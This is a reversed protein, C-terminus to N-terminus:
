LYLFIFFKSPLCITSITPYLGLEVGPPLLRLIAIDNVLTKFSTFGKHIAINAQPVIFEQVPFVQSDNSRNWVGVRCKVSVSFNFYYILKSVMLIELLKRM